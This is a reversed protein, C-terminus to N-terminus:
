RTELEELINRLARRARHARVKVNIMSWGLLAAAERISHGDLHVLTVVLRNEPSLRGLAWQL